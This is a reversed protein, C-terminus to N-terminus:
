QRDITDVGGINGDLTGDLTIKTIQGFKGKYSVSEQDRSLYPIFLNNEAFDFSGYKMQVPYTSPHAM